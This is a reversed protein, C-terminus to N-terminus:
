NESALLIRLDRVNTGTPGTAIVDGLAVFFSYSDSRRLFDDADLGIAKARAFTTGDVIAGAAPSNGDIGDTGACLAVTDFSLLHSKALRLASELNRGGLGSGQVPCAFEGGSILCVQADSQESDAGPRVPPAFGSELRNGAKKRHRRALTDLREVLLDCGERIPQDSIDSAIETIFGRKRAVDAAAQLANSNSLLLLHDYTPAATPRLPKARKIAHVITPPLLAGLDYRAIVDHRNPGKGPSALTPGAAVNREEGEPVDSVTLTIQDCDPARGALRGGKIASFERRVSNIESISAGCNVLVRNATRLDELSIDPSIPWEIMASGGGSVLFMLLAQEQSARDLLDFSARAAALSSENPEPHGALFATWRSPLRTINFGSDNSTIIGRALRDGLIEDLAAAMRRAAKGIAIAYIKRNGVDISLDGVRLHSGVLSARDRLAVMPDIAKLAQDFIERATIRLQTLNSM